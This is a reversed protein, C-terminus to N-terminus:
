VNSCEASNVEQAGNGVCNCSSSVTECTGNFAVFDSFFSCNKGIQCAGGGVGGVKKMEARSLKKFNEM